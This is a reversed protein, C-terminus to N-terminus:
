PDQKYKGFLKQPTSKAKKVFEKMSELDDKLDDKMLKM